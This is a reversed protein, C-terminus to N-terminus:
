SLTWGSPRAAPTPCQSIFMEPIRSFSHPAMSETYDRFFTSCYTEIVDASSKLRYFPLTNNSSSHTHVAINLPCGLMITGVPILPQQLM